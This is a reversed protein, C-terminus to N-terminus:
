AIPRRKPPVGDVQMRCEARMSRDMYDVKEEFACTSKYGAILKGLFPLTCQEGCSTGSLTMPHTVLDYNIVDFAWEDIEERAEGHVVTDKAVVTRVGLDLVLM